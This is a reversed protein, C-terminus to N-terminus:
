AEDGFALSKKLLRNSGFPPAHKGWRRTITNKQGVRSEDQFWTEIPTGKPLTARVKAM